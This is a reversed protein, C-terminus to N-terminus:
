DRRRWMEPGTHVAAKPAKTDVQIEQSASDTTRGVVDLVRVHIRNAGEKLDVVTSFRGQSDAWATQEGVEVRAGPGTVGSVSHRTKATSGAAPWKVKLLLSAPVAAPATPATGAKGVSVFGARVVVQEGGSALTAEGRTVAASLEGKGNAMAWVAADRAEAVVDGSANTLQLRRNASGQVDAFVLGQGVVIRALSADFRSLQLEAKEHIRISFAQGDGLAASAGAQTRLSSGPSVQAGRALAQWEGRAGQVEVTGSSELLRLGPSPPKAVPASASVTAVAPPTPRALTWFYLATVLAAIGLLTALFM